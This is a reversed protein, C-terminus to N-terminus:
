THYGLIVLICRQASYDKSFDLSHMTYQAIFERQYFFNLECDTTYAESEFNLKNAFRYQFQVRMRLICIIERFLLHICLEVPMIFQLYYFFHCCYYYNYCLTSPLEWPAKCCDSVSLVLQFNISSFSITFVSVFHKRSAATGIFFTYHGLRVDFDGAYGLFIAIYARWVHIFGSYMCYIYWHCLGTFKSCM